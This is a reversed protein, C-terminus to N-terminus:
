CSSASAAAVSNLHEAEGIDLALPKEVFVHKGHEMATLALTYHLEAPSAISIADIEKAEVAQAFTMAKVNFTAAAEEAAAPNADVVAGCRVM